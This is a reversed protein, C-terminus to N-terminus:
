QVVQWDYLRQMDLLYQNMQTKMLNVVIGMQLAQEEVTLWRTGTFAYWRGARRDFAYRGFPLKNNTSVLFEGTYYVFRADQSMCGGNPTPYCAGKWSQHMRIADHASKRNMDALASARAEAAAGPRPAGFQTDTWLETSRETIGLMQNDPNNRQMKLFTSRVDDDSRKDSAQMQGLWYKAFETDQNAAPAPAGSRYGIVSEPVRGPPAPIPGQPGFSYIGIAAAPPREYAGRAVSPQMMGVDAVQGVNVIRGRGAAIVIQSNVRLSVGRVVHVPSVLTGARGFAAAPIQFQFTGDAATVTRALGALGSVQLTLDVGRIGGLQPHVVRGVLQGGPQAYAHTASFFLAAAAATRVFFRTFTMVM